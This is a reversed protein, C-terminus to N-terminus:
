LVFGWADLRVGLVVCDGDLWGVVGGCCGVFGEEVRESVTYDAGERCGV